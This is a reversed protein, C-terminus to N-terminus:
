RRSPKSFITSIKPLNSGFVPISKPLLLTRTLMEVDAKAKSRTTPSFSQSGPGTNTTASSKSGGVKMQAAKSDDKKPAM